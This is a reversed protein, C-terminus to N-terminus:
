DERMKTKKIYQGIDNEVRENIEMIEQLMDMSKDKNMLNAPKKNEQENKQKNKNFYNRFGDM